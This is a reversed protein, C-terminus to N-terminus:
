AEERVNEKAMIYMLEVIAKALVSYILMAVLISPEIVSSGAAAVDFIGRFPILLADTVSYTLSVIPAFSNAGFAKFV